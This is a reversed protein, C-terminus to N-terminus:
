QLFILCYQTKLIKMRYLLSFGTCHLDLSSNQLLSKQRKLAIDKLFVIYCLISHAQTEEFFWFFLCGGGFCVVFLFGVLCFAFMSLGSYPINLFQEMKNESVQAALAPQQEAPESFEPSLYSFYQIM